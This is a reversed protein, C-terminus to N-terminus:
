ELANSNNVVCWPNDEEDESHAVVDLDEAEAPTLDENEPTHESM